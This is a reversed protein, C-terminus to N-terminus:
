ARELSSRIEVGSARVISVAREDPTPVVLGATISVAYDFAGISARVQAM